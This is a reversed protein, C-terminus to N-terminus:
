SLDGAPGGTEAPRRALDKEAEWVERSIQQGGTVETHLLRRNSDFTAYLTMRRFCRDDMLEKRIEFGSDGASLDTQPNLRTHLVRQCNDCRVYFYIGDDKPEPQSRGLLRDLFGM